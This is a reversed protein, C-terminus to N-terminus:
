VVLVILRCRSIRKVNKARDDTLAKGTAPQRDHIGCINLRLSTFRQDLESPFIVYERDRNDEIKRLLKAMLPISRPRITLESRM